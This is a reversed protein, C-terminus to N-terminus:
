LGHKITIPIRVVSSGSTSSTVTLTGTTTGGAAPVPVNFVLPKGAGPTNCWATPQGSLTETSSGPEFTVEATSPPSSGTVTRVLETGNDPGDFILRM